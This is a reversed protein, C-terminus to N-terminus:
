LVKIFIDKRIRDLWKEFFITQKQRLALGEIQPYYDDLTPAGGEKDDSVKLIHFGEPTEFPPTIEGAKIGFLASRFAPHPVEGLEIWGVYGLDSINSFKASLGSVLTDFLTPKQELQFFYTKIEELAASRDDESPSVKILIHRSRIKEGQRALLQIIHYGFVTEIVESTEGIELGFAVVEFEPVLQGRRIFGLDGGRDSTAPDDSITRALAGFDEGALIKDRVKMARDLAASHAEIGPVIPVILQSVEFSPDVMPLSDRYTDFFDIVEDRTISVASIKQSQYREAIIRDRVEFWQEDRFDRMKVGLVTVLEEESGVQAIMNDIQQDLAQDVEINSVDDVSDIKAKALLLKQTIMGERAQHNLQDALRPNLSLDIGNQLASMQALQLVESKLIIKDGVIAAVGDILDQCFVFTPFAAFLIYKYVYKVATM